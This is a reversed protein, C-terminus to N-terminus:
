KGPEYENILKNSESNSHKKIFGAENSCPDDRADCREPNQGSIMMRDLNGISHITKLEHGSLIPVFDGAFSSRQSCHFV